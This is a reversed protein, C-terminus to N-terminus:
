GFPAYRELIKYYEPFVASFQEKRYEDVMNNWKWFQEWHEKNGKHVLAHKIATLDTTNHNDLHKVIDSGIKEPINFISYYEPFTSLIYYLKLNFENYLNDALEGIYYVNMSTVTCVPLISSNFRRSANLGAFWKINNYVEKWKGPHRLYEFQDGWGDISLNINVHNFRKLIDIKERPIRHTINTSINIQIEEARGTDAIKELLNFTQEDLLPEGGYIELRKLNGSWEVIEDIQEDTFETRSSGKVYFNNKWEPNEAYKKGEVSLTLSDAGNCSRCRLNCINSIKLALQVPGKKYNEISHGQKEIKLRESIFGVSEEVWCRQCVKHKGNNLMHERFQHLTDSTWVNKLEEGSFNWTSGGLAPCPSANLNADMTFHTFPALCLNPPKNKLTIM